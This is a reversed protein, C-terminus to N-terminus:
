FFGTNMEGERHKSVKQSQQSCHSSKLQGNRKVSSDANSPGKKPTEGIFFFSCHERRLFCFLGYDKRISEEVKMISVHLVCALIDLM